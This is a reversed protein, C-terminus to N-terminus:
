KQCCIYKFESIPTGKLLVKLVEKKTFKNCKDYIEIENVPEKYELGREKLMKQKEQEKHKLQQFQSVQYL